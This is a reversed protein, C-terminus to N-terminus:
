WITSGGVGFLQVEWELYNFRGSGFLQVEWELYNFRGSGITSGGVVM